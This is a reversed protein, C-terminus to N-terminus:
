DETQSCVQAPLYSEYAEITAQIAGNMDYRSEALQRGCNGMALRLETDVVLRGIADALAQADRAPVVYGTIGDEISEVCGRADTTVVPLGMAQAEMTVLPMGERHSPLVFIDMLAYLAPTDDRQGAFVCRGSSSQRRAEAPSIADSKDPDFPGVILLKLNCYCMSLVEFANFLEVVGKEKVLRGVYGVVIDEKELGLESRLQDVKSESISRINFRKTDIGMGGPLFRLEKKKCLPNSKVTMYDQQNILFAVHAPLLSLTEIIAFVTKRLRSSSPTFYLGHITIARTPVRAFLAAWQGLLNAKPTHTHVLDFKERSFVRYLQWLAVCDAIFSFRRSFPISIHHIGAQELTTVCSGGASVGNVRYGARDLAQLTHFLVYKLTTDVTTVHAIKPAETGLIRQDPELRAGM